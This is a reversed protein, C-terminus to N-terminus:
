PRVYGRRANAGGAVVLDLESDELESLTPNLVYDGDILGVRAAAIPGMFPLGSIALAASAGIM